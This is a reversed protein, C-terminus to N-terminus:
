PVLWKRISKAMIASKLLWPASWCNKKSSRMEWTGYANGLNVLTIAVQPHEKGYHREIIVLARELLEKRQKADGLAGYANGLNVLTRAVEPHEKGYHLEKVQLAKQLSQQAEKSMRRRFFVNGINELVRGLDEALEKGWTPNLSAQLSQLHVLM